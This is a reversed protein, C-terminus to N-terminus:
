TENNNEKKIKTQKVKINLEEEYENQNVTNNNGTDVIKYNPVILDNWNEVHFINYNRDISMVEVKVLEMQEELFTIIKYGSIRDVGLAEKADEITRRLAEEDFKENAELFSMQQSEESLEENLTCFSDSYHPKIRKGYRDKLDFFTKTRMLTYLCQTQVDYILIMKWIRRDFPAVVFDDGSLRSIINTNIYDWKLGPECNNTLLKKEDRFDLIDDKLANAISGVIIQKKQNSLNTSRM